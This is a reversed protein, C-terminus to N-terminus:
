LQWRLVFGYVTKRLLEDGRDEIFMVNEMVKELVKDVVFGGQRALDFFAMDKDFLWPRYPTFFVLASASPLRKLALRITSLLKDHESHNFLLDALILLDFGSSMSASFPAGWLYGEAAVESGSANLYECKDINFKLNEILDEDPYDTIIVKRAGM